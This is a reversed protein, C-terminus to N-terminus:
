GSGSAGAFNFEDKEVDVPNEGVAFDPNERRGSALLRSSLWAHDFTGRLLPSLGAGPEVAGTQDFGLAKVGV